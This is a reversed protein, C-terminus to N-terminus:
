LITTALLEILLLLKILLGLLLLDLIGLQYFGFDEILIALVALLGIDLSV